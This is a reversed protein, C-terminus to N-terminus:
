HLALSAAMVAMGLIIGTIELHGRGYERAAPLLEDLSIFVMIGAVTALMAGVVLDDIFPLLVLYVALAGLPEALGSALSHLVAKTRSRTAFLVLVAVSMGEPINHIAVAMAVSSGLSTASISSVFTAMGEPVNHIAIALATLLGLRELSRRQDGSPAEDERRADPAAAARELEAVRVVEHPNAAPEAILMDLARALLIGGFFCGYALWEGAHEGVRAGILEKADPVLEALSVFIMVGGSFGLGFSLLRLDRRPSLLVVLSGLGTSLGAALTLLFATLPSGQMCEIGGTGRGFPL